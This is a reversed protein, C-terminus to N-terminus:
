GEMREMIEYDPTFDLRLVEIVQDPDMLDINLISIIAKALIQANGPYQLNMM